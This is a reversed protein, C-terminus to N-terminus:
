ADVMKPKAPAPKTVPVLKVKPKAPAPKTVPMLKVPKPKAQAPKALPKLIIPEAEKLPVASMEKGIIAYEPYQKSNKVVSIHEFLLRFYETMAKKVDDFTRIQYENEMFGIDRLFIRILGLTYGFESPTIKKLQFIENQAQMLLFIWQARTEDRPYPILTQKPYKWADSDELQTLDFQMRSVIFLALELQLIILKRLENPDARKLIDSILNYKKAEGLQMIENEFRSLQPLPLGALVQSTTLILVLGFFSKLVASYCKMM